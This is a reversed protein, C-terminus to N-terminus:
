KLLAIMHKKTSPLNEVSKISDSILKEFTEVILVDILDVEELDINHDRPQKCLYFVILELTMNGFSLTTNGNRCNIIVNSTALFPRGLIVLIQAHPDVVPHTDLVISGIPFYFNDVQM